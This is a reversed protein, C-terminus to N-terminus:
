LDTVGLYLHVYIIPYSKMLCPYLISEQAPSVLIFTTVLFLLYEALSFKDQYRPTIGVGNAHYATDCNFPSNNISLKGDNRRRKRGHKRQGLQRHNMARSCSAKKSTM